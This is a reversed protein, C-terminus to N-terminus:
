TLLLTLVAYLIFPCAVVIAIYHWGNPEGFDRKCGGKPLDFSLRTGPKSLVKFLGVQDETLKKSMNDATRTKTM